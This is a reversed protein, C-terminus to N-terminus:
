RILQEIAEAIAARRAYVPRPDTTFTIADTTISEPVELLSEYAKIQEATLASKRKGILDRLLWLYEYDEIGERLMEWRISSVPPEIVPKDGSIGPAAAALPPYVFRGDGNGWHQMDEPWTGGVYGMPDEYPNQKVDDRSTWWTSEWVLIGVINRQWTQWLWVRLDTAPHDIFLTCYPAKPGTCVYWWFREGQKRREDARNQKYEPSIPCWIDIPGALEEEPQETLMTAIGPACKKLREMGSRVFAYDKPEPEDFWYTYPMKLWGKERFHSEMQKLYSAFMAQYQPTHEGFQGIKGEARGEYSGGRMGEVHLRFNTFHHKEVAQAMARDFASFDLEARPPNAEPLFKVRIGDLPTPDYPSIRHEAFNQLYMDTVRRKDAETHIQQYQFARGISLGFATELHNREPLSFDWVHLRLSVVASWGEAKLVVSGTYDGAKADKPVHVLVWLPQNKGAALDVPKNLPPLADPWDGPTSTADTPTRVNHYYVRLVQIEEASITAGGPGVLAGVTATLGKLAQRPRVIVQVAERDDRAASMTAAAASEKPTPRSPAVKWTAECWWVDNEGGVGEIKQGYESAYYNPLNWPLMMALTEGDTTRLAVRITNDGCHTFFVATEFTQSQGPAFKVPIGSSDPMQSADKAAGPKRPVAKESFVADVPADGINKATVRLVPRNLESSDALSISEITLHRSTNVGELFVTRGVGEVPKGTLEGSFGVHNVQFSSDDSKCRLRLYITKAPLMDAPVDAEASGLSGQVAVQRWAAGDRSVEAVCGGRAYHSVAFRVKGSRFPHGPLEFRYTIQNKGGFCWRDTNYWATASALPRHCNRSEQGFNGSFTYRGDRIMEGDGLLLSGVSKYVAMAPTIQVTDFQIAGNVHWQGLHLYRSGVEDPVRLVHSYWGWKESVPQDHNAFDAGCIASASSGISRAHMQFRYVQGPVFPYDCRWRNDDNGNGTVELIHRDVWRGTGGSFTWGAPAKDGQRFDGNPVAPASPPVSTAAVL